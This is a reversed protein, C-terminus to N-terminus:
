RRSALFEGFKRIEMDPKRNFKGNHKVADPVPMSQTRLATQPESPDYGHGNTEGDELKIAKYLRQLSTMDSNCRHLHSFRNNDEADPLSATQAPDDPTYSQLENLEFYCILAGTPSYRWSLVNKLTRSACWSGFFDSPLQDILPKLSDENWHGPDLPPSDSLDAHWDMIPQLDKARPSVHAVSPAAQLSSFRGGILLQFSESNAGKGTLILAGQSDPTNDSVEIASHLSIFDMGSSVVPVREIDVPRNFTLFIVPYKQVDSMNVTRASLRLSLLLDSGRPRANRYDVFIRTRKKMLAEPVTTVLLKTSLRIYQGDHVRHLPILVRSVVNSTRRYGVDLVACAGKSTYLLPLSIRLGFNTIAYPEGADAGASRFDPNRSEPFYLASDQFVTPHPALISTWERLEEKRHRDHSNGYLESDEFLHRIGTGNSGNVNAQWCFITQDNTVRIIEEQLRLFARHGEGYLLAMHIGFIGLMCYAIDETRTTKRKAMWSMRRGVSVTQIRSPRRIYDSDIGTIDSLLKRQNEKTAIPLWEYSFFVAKSPAVLEQLTWGRTFWKSKTFAAKVSSDELFTESPEAQLREPIRVDELFVYCVTADRYWAFMSNIAESLEASSTKDICNTDVWIYDLGDRAAQQCSLEIKRYGRKKKAEAINQWDGLAVEGDEWTHSLIAYPPINNYSEELELTHTNILRM